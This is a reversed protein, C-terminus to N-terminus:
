THDGRTSTAGHHRRPTVTPVKAAQVWQEIDRPDFRVFRGVKAFPIRRELVLRRVHRETIGLMGAIQASDLLTLLGHETIANAINTDQSHKKELKLERATGGQPGVAGGAAGRPPRRRLKDSNPDSDNGPGPPCNM